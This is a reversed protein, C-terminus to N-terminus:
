LAVIPMKNYNMLHATSTEYRDSCALLTVYNQTFWCDGSLEFLWGKLIM